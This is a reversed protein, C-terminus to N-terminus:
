FSPPSDCIPPREKLQITQPPPGVWGDLDTRVAEFWAPTPTGEISHLGNNNLRGFLINPDVGVDLLFQIKEPTLLDPDFFSVNSLLIWNVLAPRVSALIRPLERVFAAQTEPTSNITNPMGVESIIIEDDPYTDRMWKWWGAPLDGLNDIVGKDLMWIPYITFAVFDHPGVRDLADLQECARFLTYHFSVGVKTEPSIEKVAQYAEQYLTAFLDFEGPTLWSLFNLETGLSLRQPRTAAIRRVNDVFLSRVQPDGFTKPLDSPAIPEGFFQVGVQVFSELGEDHVVQLLQLREDLKAQAPFSWFLSIQDSLVTAQHFARIIEEDTSNPDNAPNPVISLRQGRTTSVDNVGPGGDLLNDDGDGRLIDNGAGGALADGGRAGLLFDDDEDGFLADNDLGGVLTDNGAGGYLQDAQFGGDLGDNGDEGRLVDRGDYGALIDDGPGGRLVDDGEGGDLVDNGNGAVLVDNGVDGALRDVGDNGALADNGEDGDLLDDDLGGDLTDADPGGRLFDRGASGFLKDVGEEGSLVDDGDDGVLLDDDLGGSLIDGGAGGFLRDAGDGGVLTDNGDDGILTDIGGGGVLKDNGPGGALLDVSEGGALTDDGADGAATLPVETLNVIRDNGDDGRFTVRLLISTPFPFSQAVGGTSLSIRISDAGETAVQVVDDEITGTVIAWGSGSDFEITGAPAQAWSGAPSAAVAAALAFCHLRSFLSEKSGHM